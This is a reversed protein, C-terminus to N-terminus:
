KIIAEKIARKVNLLERTGHKYKDAAWQNIVSVLQTKEEESFGSTDLDISGFQSVDYKAPSRPADKRAEIKKIVDALQLVQEDIDSVDLDKRIKNMANNGIEADTLCEPPDPDNMDWVLDCKHCVKQDSYQRAECPKIM